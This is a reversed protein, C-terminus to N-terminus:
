KISHGSFVKLICFGNWVDFILFKKKFKQTIKNTKLEFKYM